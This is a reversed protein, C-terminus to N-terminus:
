TEVILNRMWLSQIMSMYLMALYKYSFSILNKDHSNKEKNRKFIYIIEYNYSAYVYENVKM